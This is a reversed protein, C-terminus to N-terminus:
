LRTNRECYDKFGWYTGIIPPAMFDDSRQVLWRAGQRSIGMESAIEQLTMGKKRLSRAKIMNKSPKKRM